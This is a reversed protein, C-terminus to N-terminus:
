ENEGDGPSSPPEPEIPDLKQLLRVSGDAVGLLYPLGDVEVVYLSRRPELALREVVRLRRRRGSRIRPGIFRVALWAALALLALVGATELVFRGLSPAESALASLM